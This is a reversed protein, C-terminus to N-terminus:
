CGRQSVLYEEDLYAEKDESQEQISIFELVLPEPHVDEYLELSELGDDGKEELSTERGLVEM